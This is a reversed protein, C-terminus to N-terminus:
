VSNGRVVGEVRVVQQWCSRQWREMEDEEGGGGGVVVVLEEEERCRPARAACAPTLM